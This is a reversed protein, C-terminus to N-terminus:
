PAATPAGRPCGKVLARHCPPRTGAAGGARSEAAPARAGLPRRQSRAPGRPAARAARPTLLQALPPTNAACPTHTHTRPQTCRRQQAQQRRRRRCCLQQKSVCGCLDVSSKKRRDAGGGGVGGLVADREEGVRHELRARRRQREGARRAGHRGCDLGLVRRQRADVGHQDAVVVVVVEARRRDPPQM